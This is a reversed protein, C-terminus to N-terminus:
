LTSFRLLPCCFTLHISSILFNAPVAHGCKACSRPQQLFIPSAKARCHAYGPQHHHHHHLSILSAVGLEGCMLKCLNLESFNKGKMGFWSFSIAANRSLLSQLIRTMKQKTSDGGQVALYKMQHLAQRDTELKIDFDLVDLRQLETFSAVEAHKSAPRCLGGLVHPETHPRTAGALPTSVPTYSSGCTQLETFSGAAESWHLANLVHPNTRSKTAEAVSTSVPRYASGQTQLDTYLRPAEAHTAVSRHLADPAQAEVQRREFPMSAPRYLVALM